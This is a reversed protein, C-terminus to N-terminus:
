TNSNRNKPSFRSLNLSLIARPPLTKAKSNLRKRNYLRRPKVLFIARLEGLVQRQHRLFRSHHRLFIKAQAFNADNKDAPFGYAASLTAFLAAFVVFAFQGGSNVKFFIPM